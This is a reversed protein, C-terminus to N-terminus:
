HGGQTVSLATSVGLDVFLTKRVNSVRGAVMGGHRGCGLMAGVAATFQAFRELVDMLPQIGQEFHQSRFVTRGPVMGAAYFLDPLHPAILCGKCGLDVDFAVTVPHNLLYSSM